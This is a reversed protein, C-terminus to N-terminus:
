VLTDSESSRFGIARQRRVLAALSLIGSALMGAAGPEPVPSNAVHSFVVPCLQDAAPNFVGQTGRMLDVDPYLPCYSVVDPALQILKDIDDTAVLGLPDIGCLEGADQGVKEKSFAFMGVLEMRTDSLIARVAQRAVGGSTWQVVKIAM